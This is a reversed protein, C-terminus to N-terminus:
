IRRLGPTSPKPVEKPEPKKGTLAALVNTLDVKEGAANAGRKPKQGTEFLARAKRYYGIIVDLDQDTMHLPDLRMVRDISTTDVESTEKKPTTSDQTTFTTFKM